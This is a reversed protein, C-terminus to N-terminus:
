TILYNYAVIEGCKLYLKNCRSLAKLETALSEFYCREPGPNSEWLSCIELSSNFFDGHQAKGARSNHHWTKWGGAKPPHQLTPLQRRGTLSPLDPNPSKRSRSRQNRSKKCYQWHPHSNGAWNLKKIYNTAVLSTRRCWVTIHVHFFRLILSNM